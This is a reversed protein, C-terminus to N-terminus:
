TECKLTEQHFDKAFDLSIRLNLVSYIKLGSTFTNTVVMWAEAATIAMITGIAINV